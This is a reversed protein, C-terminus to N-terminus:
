PAVTYSFSLLLVFLVDLGHREPHDAITACFMAFPQMVFSDRCDLLLFAAVCLGFRCGLDRAAFAM